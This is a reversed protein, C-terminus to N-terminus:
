FLWSLYRKFRTMTVSKEIEQDDESEIYRDTELDMEELKVIKTKKFVKWGLYMALMVPLELYFSVFDVLSFTPSFCSWGQVLVLFSNLLVSLWPGYPYTWNKFPLLDIKGQRSIAARFRLSTFGITIWTLQNSVGVISYFLISIYPNAPLEM